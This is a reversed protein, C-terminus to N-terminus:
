GLYDAPEGQRLYGYIRFGSATEAGAFRISKLIARVLERRHATDTSLETWEMWDWGGNAWHHSWEGDYPSLYGTELNKCRFRPRDAPPLRLVAERLERWKTDNAM